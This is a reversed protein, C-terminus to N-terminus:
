LKGEDPKFSLIRNRSAPHMGPQCGSWSGCEIMGSLTTWPRGILKQAFESSRLANTIAMSIGVGLAMLLIMEVLLQGRQNQVPSNKM